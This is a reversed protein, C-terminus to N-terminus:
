DVGPHQSLRMQRQLVSHLWSSVRPYVATIRRVAPLRRSPRAFRGPGFFVGATTIFPLVTSQIDIRLATNTSKRPCKTTHKLLCQIITKLLINYLGGYPPTSGGSKLYCGGLRIGISVGRAPYMIGFYGDSGTKKLKLAHKLLLICVSSACFGTKIAM